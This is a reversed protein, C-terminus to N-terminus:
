VLIGVDLKCIGSDGSLFGSANDTFIGVLEHGEDEISEETDDGPIRSPRDDLVDEEDSGTCCLTVNAGNGFSAGRLLREATGSPTAERLSSM